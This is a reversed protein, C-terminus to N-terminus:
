LLSQISAKFEWPGEHKALKRALYVMLTVAALASPQFSLGFVYIWRSSNAGGIAQGQTITFALLGLSIWLMMVSLPGFFRYPVRHAGQAILLGLTIHAMHMYVNTSASFVPLFSFVALLLTIMWIQTSGQFYTTFREMPNM